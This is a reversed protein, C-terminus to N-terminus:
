KSCTSVQTKIYHKLDNPQLGPLNGLHLTSILGTQGSVENKGSLCKCPSELKGDQSCNTPCNPCDKASASDVATECTNGVFLKTCHCKVAAVGVHLCTGGNKCTPTGNTYCFSKPGESCNPGTYGNFCSCSFKANIETKNLRFLPKRQQIGNFRMSQLIAEIKM